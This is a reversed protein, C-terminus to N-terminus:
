KILLANAKALFDHFVKNYARIRRYEDANTVIGMASNTFDGSIIRGADICEEIKKNYRKQIIIYLALLLAILLSLLINTHVMFISIALLNVAINIFRYVILIGMEGLSFSDSDIVVMANGPDTQPPSKKVCYFVKKATIESLNLSIFNGIRKFLLTSIYNFILQVLFLATYVCFPYLFALYGKNQLDFLANLSENLVFPLQVVIVADLALIIIGM